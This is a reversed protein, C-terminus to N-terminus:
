AEETTDQKQDKGEVVEQSYKCKKTTKCKDEVNDDKGVDLSTSEHSTISVNSL